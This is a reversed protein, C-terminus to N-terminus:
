ETCTVCKGIFPVSPKAGSWDDINQAIWQTAEALGAGLSTANAKSAPVYVVRFNTGMKKSSFQVLLDKQTPRYLTAVSTYNQLILADELILQKHKTDQLRGLMNQNPLEPLRLSTIAEGEQLSDFTIDTEPVILFGYAITTFRDPFKHRKNMHVFYDQKEKSIMTGVGSRAEELLDVAWICVWTSLLLVHVFSFM